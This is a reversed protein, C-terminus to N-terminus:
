WDEGDDGGSFSSSMASSGKVTTESYRNLSAAQLLHVGVEVVNITPQIYTKKM